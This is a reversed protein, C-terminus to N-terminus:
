VYVVTSQEQCDKLFQVIEPRNMTDLKGMLHMASCGWYVGNMRVLVIFVSTFILTFVKKKICLPTYKALNKKKYIPVFNFIYCMFQVRMKMKKGWKEMEPNKGGIEEYM